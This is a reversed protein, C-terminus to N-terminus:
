KVEIFKFTFLVQNFLKEVDENTCINKDFCIASYGVGVYKEKLEPHEILVIPGRNVSDIEDYRTAKIGPINLKTALESENNNNYYDAESKNLINLYIQYGQRTFDKGEM